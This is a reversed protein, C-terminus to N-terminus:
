EERQAWSALRSYDVNNLKYLMNNCRNAIKGVCDACHKEGIGVFDYRISDEISRLENVISSLEDRAEYLTM